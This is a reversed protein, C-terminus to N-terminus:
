KVTMRGSRTLWRQQLLQLVNAMTWYLVMVAPFPYFLVLFGAAMAYQQIQAAKAQDAGAHASSLLASSLLSVLTMLIPLASFQGGLLPLAFPLQALTDPHALDSIWLFQAGLFQPMKGLANFIAVLLPIQIMTALLPKLTYFPTVGLAKHAAMIRLHAEEGDHTKKIEALHPALEATIRDCNSQVRTVLISLPLLLFKVLVAFIAVVVGWNDIGGDHVAVLTWEVGKALAGFVRGLHAYRLSNLSPDVDRLSSKSIVEITAEAGAAPQSAIRFSNEHIEIVAGPWQMVMVNFRGTVAFWQGASLTVQEGPAVDDVVGDNVSFFSLVNYYAALGYFDYPERLQAAVRAFLDDSTESNTAVELLARDGAQVDSIIAPATLVMLMLCASRFHAAWSAAWRRKKYLKETVTTQGRAKRRLSNIQM